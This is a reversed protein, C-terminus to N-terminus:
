IVNPQVPLKRGNKIQIHSHKFSTYEDESAQTCKSSVVVTWEGGQLYTYQEHLHEHTKQTITCVSNSLTYTHITHTLNASTINKVTGHEALGCEVLDCGALYGAM